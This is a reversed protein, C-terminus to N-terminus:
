HICIKPVNFSRKEVNNGLFFFLVFEFHRIWSPPDLIASGLRAFNMELDCKKKTLERYKECRYSCIYNM